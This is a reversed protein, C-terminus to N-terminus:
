KTGNPVRKNQNQEKMTAWRCNEPSYGQDNDKRDITLGDAYGNSMAWDHFAQFNDRWEDCVTIGRGGYHKYAHYGPYYCRNKMCNWIRYLRTQRKGHTRNATGTRERQLCGCSCTHGTKLNHAEAVIETGCDCICKWMTRKKVSESRCLVTLRGFRQGTMDVLNM